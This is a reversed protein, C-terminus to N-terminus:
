FSGLLGVERFGLVPVIRPALAQASSRAHHADLLLLTVGAAAGIGGVILSAVGLNHQSDGSNDKAIIAQQQAPDSCTGSPSTAKCADYLKDSSSRTSSAKLFFATGLGLGVAGIAFSIYAGTRFAHGQAPASDSLPNSARAISAPTAGGSGASNSDASSPTLTLLVTQKGGEALTVTVPSSQASAARAEFVHQGPDVPLPIGVMAAPLRTGDMRVDLDDSSGGQVAITVSPLRADFPAREQEAAAQAEVFAKPAGAPLVERVIKLYSEHAAVLRGVKAQARALFLLHTPAHVLQEARSFSDIAQAYQGANFATVGASAADRAAARELDTQAFASHTAILLIFGSARSSTVRM